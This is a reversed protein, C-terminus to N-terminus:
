NIEIWNKGAQAIAEPVEGIQNQFVTQIHALSQRAATMGRLSKVCELLLLSIGVDLPEIELLREALKECLDFKGLQFLDELVGLGSKCVSWEIEGRTEIAWINESRPLFSGGYLSLAKRLGNEGAIALARRFELVDWRLRLGRVVLRYTHRNSDFPISVGPIAKRVSQRILHIHGRAQIPDTETFINTQVQELTCEGHELFYTMVEITRALGSQVRVDVGDLTLRYTGLTTISLLAPANADLDRWDKMLATMYAKKPAISLRELAFPLNRLEAVFSAGCALAHRSDTARELHTDAEQTLELKLYAEALHLHTIGLERELELREFATLAQLLLTLSEPNNTRVLLAGYRLALHAHMKTSTADILGRARHFHARAMSLDDTATSLATLGLEAYFEPEPEGVERALAVTELYDRAADDTLGQAQALKAKVYMVNPKFSADTELQDLLALDDRAEKWHGIYTYALVRQLLLAPRAHAAATELARNLYGTADRDRGASSLAFALMPIINPVFAKADEDGSAVDLARTFSEISDKLLGDAFLVSGREREFLTVGLSDLKSQDVSKLLERGRGTEGSFRYVSALLAGALEIGGERARNLLESAELFHGLRALALGAWCCEDATPTTQLRFQELAVQTSDSRLVELWQTRTMM